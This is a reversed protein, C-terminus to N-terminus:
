ARILTLSFLGLFNIQFSVSAVINDALRTETYPNLDNFVFPQHEKRRPYRIKAVERYLKAKVRKLELHTALEFEGTKIPKNEPKLKGRGLYFGSIKM